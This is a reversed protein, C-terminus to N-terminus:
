FFNDTDTVKIVDIKLSARDSNELMWECPLMQDRQKIEKLFVPVFSEALINKKKRKSM